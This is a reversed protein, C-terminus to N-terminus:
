GVLLALFTNEWATITIDPHLVHEMKVQCTNNQIYVAFYMSNGLVDFQIVGNWHHSKESVFVQSLSNFLENITAGSLEYATPRIFDPPLTPKRPSIFYNAFVILFLSIGIFALANVLSNTILSFIEEILGHMGNPYNESFTSLLSLLVLMLIGLINGIYYFFSEWISLSRTLLGRKTFNHLQWKRNILIFITLVLACSEILLFATSSNVTQAKLTFYIGLVVFMSLIITVQGILPDINGKNKFLILSLFYLLFLIYLFFLYSSFRFIIPLISFFLLVMINIIIQLFFDDKEPDKANLVLM